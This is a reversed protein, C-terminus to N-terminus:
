RTSCLEFDELEPSNQIIKALAHGGGGGSMNNKFHFLKLPTPVKALFISAIVQRAHWTPNRDAAGFM